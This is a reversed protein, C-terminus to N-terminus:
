KKRSKSYLTTRNAFSIFDYGAIHMWDIFKIEKSIQFLSATRNSFSIFDYRVFSSVPHWCILGRKSVSHWRTYICFSLLLCTTRNAFSIFDYGAIHMWDIFKIEKSIQFLTNDLECFFYFWIIDLLTLCRIGGHGFVSHCYANM